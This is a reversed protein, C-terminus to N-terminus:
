LSSKINPNSVRHAYAWPHYWTTPWQEDILPCVLAQDVKFTFVYELKLSHSRM